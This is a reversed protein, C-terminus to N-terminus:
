YVLVWFVTDQVLISICGRLAERMVLFISLGGDSSDQDVLPDRRNRRGSAQALRKLAIVGKCFVESHEPHMKIDLSIRPHDDEPAPISWSGTLLKQHNRM